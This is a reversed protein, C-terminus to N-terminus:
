RTLLPSRKQATRVVQQSPGTHARTTLPQGVGALAAKKESRGFSHHPEAQLRSFRDERAGRPGGTRGELRPVKEM